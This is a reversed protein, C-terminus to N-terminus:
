PKRCESYFTGNVAAVRELCQAPDTIPGAVTFDYGLGKLALVYRGAPLVFAPDEPRVLIMEPNDGIPAVTFNYSINRITWTDEVSTTDPKGATDFTMARTIKAVVRVTIKDPASAALDRRFAVFDVRGDPLVTHRPKSIAASMFVRPDPINGPLSDLQQLQGNSLAYVGYVTPMPLPPSEPSQAPAENGDSAPPATAAPPGALVPESHLAANQSPVSRVIERLALTFNAVAILGLMLVGFRMLSADSPWPWGRSSEQVVTGTIPLTTRHISMWAPPPTFLEVQPEAVRGTSLPEPSPARVPLNPIAADTQLRSDGAILLNSAQAARQGDRQLAQNEVREIATELATVLRRDEAASIPPESLLRAKRLKIRATEYIISRLLTPDDEVAEILESLILTFDVQLSHGAPYMGGSGQSAKSTM